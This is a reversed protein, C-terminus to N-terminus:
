SSWFAVRGLEMTLMDLSSRELSAPMKGLVATAISSDIYAPDAIAALDVFSVGETFAPAVDTAAALALRTKGIGGRGVIRLLRARTLLAKVGAIETTRGIFGSLTAPLPTAATLADDASAHLQEELAPSPANGLESMAARYKELLLRAASPRKARTEAEILVLYATEDYPNRDLLLRAATPDRTWRVVRALLHEYIGALREREASPWEEYNGELFDGVYLALAEHQTRADESTALSAFRDADYDTTAIWRVVAKNAYFVDDAGDHVRRVARRISSLATRLGERARDPDAESWLLDLLRERAIDRGRNAILYALLARAKQTPLAPM